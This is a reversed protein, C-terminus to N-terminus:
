QKILNSAVDKFWDLQSYNKKSMDGDNKMIFTSLGSHENLPLRGWLYATADEYVVVDALASEFEDLYGGSSDLARVYSAFDYYNCVSGTEYPQPTYDPPLGTSNMGYILSTVSALGDMGDTDIVAVTCMRYSDELMAKYFDMTNKAAGVLDPDNNFFCKINKDYPMGYALVETPYAVIMRVANRLQYVVEVSAMYCCDMYLFSFGRGELTSALTTINMAQSGKHEWGYSYPRVAAPESETIGDQIWGTGHGWLILGYDGAPAFNKMDDFVENMRSSTQPLVEPDYEKLTEIGSPTIEKLIQSGDSASHFVLLRGYGLAGARVAECMEEIDQIDYDRPAGAGLGNSSALMYVIVTRHADQQPPGPQGPTDNHDGCAAFAVVCSLACLLRILNGKINRLILM